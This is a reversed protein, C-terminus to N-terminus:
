RPVSYFLKFFGIAILFLIIILLVIIIDDKELNIKEKMSGGKKADEVNKCRKGKLTYLIM